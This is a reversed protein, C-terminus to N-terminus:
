EEQSCEPLIMGEDLVKGIWERLRATKDSPRGVLNFFDHTTTGTGGM